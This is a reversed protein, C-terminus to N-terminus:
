FCPWTVVSTQSGPRQTMVGRSGTRYRSEPGAMVQADPIRAEFGARYGQALGKWERAETEGDTFHPTPSM